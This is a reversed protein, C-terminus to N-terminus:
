RDVAARAVAAVDDVADTIVGLAGLDLLARARVPDNVTWALVPWGRHACARLFRPTVLPDEAVILDPRSVPNLWMRRLATRQWGPLRSGAFTGVIQGRLVGPTIEAVAALVFPDFSTVFVADVADHRRLAADLRRALPLPDPDTKLEVDLPVRGAYRELAEDLTPLRTGAFQQGFRVGADLRSLADLTHAALEGTGDTTRDVTDDHLIVLHGDRSTGVDLEIGIGRAACAEFAPHTNEPFKASYGRHGLVALGPHGGPLRDLRRPATRSRLAATAATTLRRLM